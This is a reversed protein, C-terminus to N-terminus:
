ESDFKHETQKMFAISIHVLSYFVSFETREEYTCLQFNCTKILQLNDNVPPPVPRYYSHM